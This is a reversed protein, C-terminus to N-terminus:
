RAFIPSSIRVEQTNPFITCIATQHLKLQKMTQSSNTKPKKSTIASQTQNPFKQQPIQPFSSPSFRYLLTSIQHSTLSPQSFPTPSTQSAILLLSHSFFYCSIAQLSHKYSLIFSLLWFLLKARSSFIAFVSSIRFSFQFFNISCDYAIFIAYFQILVKYCLM